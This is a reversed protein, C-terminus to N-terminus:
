LIVGEHLLREIEQKETDTAKIDDLHVNGIISFGNVSSLKRSINSPIGDEKSYTKSFNSVPREILVFPRRCGLFAVSSSYSNSQAIDGHANAAAIASTALASINGSAASAVAGAGAGVLGSVMNSYTVGTIPLHVCANGGYQGVITKGSNNNNVLAGTSRVFAMFSGDIVNFRYTVNLSERYFWEPKAPVFGLFPLYLRMSTLYDAFNHYYEKLSITGCDVTVYDNSLRTGTAQLTKSGVKINQVTGGSPSVPLVHCDIIYNIYTAANMQEFFSPVNALFTVVANFGNVVADTVDTGTIAVPPTYSLPPFLEVGMNQLSQTGTKYVNVFGVNSVGITPADPLDITDSSNDFGGDDPNYGGEESPPGAEPSGDVYDFTLGDVGWRNFTSLDIIAGIYFFTTSDINNFTGPSVSYNVPSTGGKYITFDNHEVISLSDDHGEFLCLMRLPLDSDRYPTPFTGMGFRLRNILGIGSAVFITDSRTTLPYEVDLGQTNELVIKTNVYVTVYYNTFIDYNEIEVILHLKYQGTPDKALQVDIVNAKDGVNPVATVIDSFSLNGLNFVNPFVINEGSNCSWNQVVNGQGTVYSILPQQEETFPDPYEKLADDFSIANPTESTANLQELFEIDAM